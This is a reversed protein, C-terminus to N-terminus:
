VHEGARRHVAARSIGGYRSEGEQPAARISRPDILTTKRAHSYKAKGAVIRQGRFFKTSFSAHLM